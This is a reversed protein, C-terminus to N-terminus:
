TSTLTFLVSGASVELRCRTKKSLRHDFAISFTYNSDQDCVPFMNRSVAPIIYLTEFSGYLCLPITLRSKMTYYGSVSAPLEGSPFFLWVKWYYRSYKFMQIFKSCKGGHRIQRAGRTLPPLARCARCIQGHFATIRNIRYAASKFAVRFISSPQRLFERKRSDSAVVNRHGTTELEKVGLIATM